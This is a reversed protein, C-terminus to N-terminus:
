EFSLARSHGATVEAQLTKAGVAVTYSGPALGGLLLPTAPDVRPPAGIRRLLQSVNWGDARVIEVEGSAGAITLTGGRDINLAIADDDRTRWTGFSWSGQDFGALRLRKAGSSEAIRLTATGTADTTLIRQGENELEAFVFAGAAPQGGRTVAIRVESPRAAGVVLRLPPTDRGEDIRVRETATRGDFTRARVEHEGAVLGRLDFTGDERALMAANATTVEVVTRPVPQGERDVVVGTVTTDNFRLSLTLEESQPIEVQQSAGGYSVNWLGPRIEDREFRGADDVNATLPADAVGWAQQQRLGNPSTREMIAAGARPQNTSAWTLVGGRAPATGILVTGRVATQIPDCDITVEDDDEITFRKECVTRRNRVVTVTAPGAAVHPVTAVGDRVAATLLDIDLSEGRTDVRATAEGARTRVRLTAGSSVVVDGLEISPVSGDLQVSRFTRAFGPADVRLVLPMANLGAVKFTGDAATTAEFLENNMFAVLPGQASQKPSWIRAGPVPSGDAAVVRGAVAFGRPATVVGLDRVEGAAGAAIPVVLEGTTPSSLALKVEEGPKLTIEFTGDDRTEDIRYSTDAEIRISASALPVREPDAIRGQVVFGRPLRVKTDDFPPRLEITERLHGGATATVRIPRNAPVDSLRAKGKADSTAVRGSGADIKANPVPQEADDVVVLDITGGRELAIAGLDVDQENLELTARHPLFGSKSAILAIARRPLHEIVFTGDAAATAEVSFLHPVDNAIWAEVAVAAGPVPEKGALLQGHLRSGAELRRTMPFEAMSASFLDIAHTAHHTVFQVSGLDPLSPLSVRGRADSLYRATVEPKTNARQRLIEVVASGAPGGASTLLQLVRTTAPAAGLIASRQTPAVDIWGSGEAAGLARVRWASRGDHPVRLAHPEKVEFRPLLAEPVERWMAAPAAIVTFAARRNRPAVQLALRQKAAASPSEKCWRTADIPEPATEDSWVWAREVPKCDGEAATVWVGDRLVVAHTAGIAPQAAVFFSLAVALRKRM